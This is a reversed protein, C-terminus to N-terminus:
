WICTAFQWNSFGSAVAVGLNSLPSLVSASYMTTMFFSVSGILPKCKKPFFQTAMSVVCPRMCKGCKVICTLVAELLLFAFGWVKRLPSAKGIGGLVLFVIVDKTSRGKSQFVVLIAVGSSFNASVALRSIEWEIDVIFLLSTATLTVLVVSDWCEILSFVCNASNQM